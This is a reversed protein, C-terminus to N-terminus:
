PPSRDEVHEIRLVGFAAATDNVVFWFHRYRSNEDRFVIEYWFCSSDPSVRRSPELRYDDAMQRLDRDLNTFLRIRGQRSLGQHQRLYLKVREAFHLTYGVTPGRDSTAARSSALSFPTGAKM